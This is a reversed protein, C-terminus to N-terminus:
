YTGDFIREQVHLRGLRNVLAYAVFSLLLGFILVISGLPTAFAVRNQELQILAIAILWPSVLAVKASGSVWGQKALIQGLVGQEERIDNSVREWNKSMGQDGLEQGFVLMLTLLDANRNAMEARFEALLSSLPHGAELLSAIRHFRARLIQPGEQSLYSFQEDLPIGSEAASQFSDFVQPWIRDLKRQRSLSKVRLVEVGFGLGLVGMCLALGPIRTSAYLVVFTGASLFTLLVLVQGKRDGYGAKSILELLFNM